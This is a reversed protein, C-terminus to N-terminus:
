PPPPFTAALLPNRSAGDARRQFVFLASSALASAGLLFAGTAETGAWGVRPVLVARLTALAIAAAWLANPVARGAFRLTGTVFLAVTATGVSAGIPLAAPVSERLLM